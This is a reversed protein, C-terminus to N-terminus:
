KPAPSGRQARQDVPLSPVRCGLRELLATAEALPGSGSDDGEREAVDAAALLLLALEYVLNQRRAEAVGAENAARAQEYLELRALIRTEVEAVQVDYLAAEAKAARQARRLIDLATSPDDRLLHCRSLQIAVELASGHMGVATADQHSCTLLREARELDGREMALRGLQFDAFQVSESGTARLVRQAELLLSEAEDLRGQNVLIEGHNAGALAALAENGSRRSAERAREYYDSAVDWRGEFYAAAGLNNLMAAQRPLDELEEYIALAKAMFVAEDARGLVILAWDIVAYAQALAFREGADEAQEVGRWAVALAEEPLEQGQRVIAEFATLRARWRYALDSDLPRLRRAASRVGRLAATYLGTQEQARGRRLALRALALPDDRV